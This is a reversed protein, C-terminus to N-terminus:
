GCAGPVRGTKGFSHFARGAGYRGTRDVHEGEARSRNASAPIFQLFKNRAIPKGGILEPRAYGEAAIGSEDPRATITRASRGAGHIEKREHLVRVALTLQSLRLFECCSVPESPVLKARTDRKAAVGCQDASWKIVNDFRISLAVTGRERICTRYIGQNLGRKRTGTHHFRVVGRGAARAGERNRREIIKILIDSVVEPPLTM